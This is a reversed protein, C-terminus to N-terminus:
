RQDDQAPRRAIVGAFPSFRRSTPLRRRLIREVNGVARSFAIFGLVLLQRLKTTLKSPDLGAANVIGLHLGLLYENRVVELGVKTHAAALAPADLPVHMDYVPRNIWRMLTGDIGAMNPVTTVMVGGDNLFRALARLAGATDQFHEVVGMSIVADFRNELAAPPAFLDACTIEADVGARRALDAARECGVPSYDLGSVAFGWRKAFYPLWGSDGCGIELIRKGSTGGLLSFAQDFFREFELEVLNLPRAGVARSHQKSAWLSNWFEQGALDGQASAKTTTATM